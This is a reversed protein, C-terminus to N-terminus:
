FMWFYTGLTSGHSNPPNHELSPFFLFLFCSIIASIPTIDVSEVIWDDQQSILIPQYDHLFLLICPHVVSADWYNHSHATIYVVAPPTDTTRVPTPKDSLLLVPSPKRAAV